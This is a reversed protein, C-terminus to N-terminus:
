ELEVPIWQMQELHAIVVNDEPPVMERCVYVTGYVTVGFITNGVLYADHDSYDLIQQNEPDIFQEGSCFILFGGFLHVKKSKENHLLLLM